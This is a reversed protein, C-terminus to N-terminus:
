IEEEEEEPTPPTPPDTDKKRVMQRAALKISSAFCDVSNPQQATIDVPNVECNFEIPINPEANMDESYNGGLKGFMLIEQNKGGIQGVVVWMVYPKGANDRLFDFTKEGRQFISASYKAKSPQSYSYVVRGRDDLIEGTKPELDLKQKIVCPFAKWGENITMAASSGPPISCPALYAVSESGFSTENNDRLTLDLAM